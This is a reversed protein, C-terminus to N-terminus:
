IRCPNRGSAARQGVRFSAHPPDPRPTFRDDDLLRTYFTPVGMMTTVHPLHSLIADLDFKPLFLMSGGAMLTVNTAVFLGHTHFIPLAHMLRDHATFHWLRALTEANSLLNRQTLMAGKSRGTTGSTYLLAALDSEERPAVACDPSQQAALDSFSGSGDANLTELHAGAQAAVSDLHTKHAGDCIFLRAGSDSVFYAIEAPTYATNLPLFVAGTQACAAYLALMEPSKAIQVAVRDGTKVGLGTLTNAFRGAM